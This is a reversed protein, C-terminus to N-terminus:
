GPTITDISHKQILVRRKDDERELVIAYTDLGVVYGRVSEGSRLSVTVLEGETDYYFRAESTGFRGTLKIPPEAPKDMNAGINDRHAKRARMGNM